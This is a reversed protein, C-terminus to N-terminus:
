RGFRAPRSRPGCGAGSRPRMVDAFSILLLRPGVANGDGAATRPRNRPAVAAVQTSSGSGRGPEREDRTRRCQPQRNRKARGPRRPQGSGRSEGGRQCQRGFSGERDSPPGVPNRGRARVDDDERHIRHAGVGPLTHLAVRPECAAPDRELVCLADGRPRKGGHGGHHRALGHGDVPRHGLVLLDRGEPEPSARNRDRGIYRQQGFAQGLVPRGVPLEWRELGRSAVVKILDDLGRLVRLVDAVGAFLM